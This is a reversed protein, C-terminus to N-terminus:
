DDINDISIVEWRKEAEALFKQADSVERESSTAQPAQIEERARKARKWAKKTADESASLQQQNQYLHHM